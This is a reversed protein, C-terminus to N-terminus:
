WDILVACDDANWISLLIDIYKLSNEGIIAIRKM